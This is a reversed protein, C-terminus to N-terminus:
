PMKVFDQMHNRFRRLEEFEKREAATILCVELEYRTEGPHYLHTNHRKVSAKDILDEVLKEALSRSLERKIRQDMHAKTMAEMLQWDPISCCAKLTEM